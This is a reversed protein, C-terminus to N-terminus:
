SMNSPLSVFWSFITLELFKSGSKMSRQIDDIGLIQQWIEDIKIEPYDIGHGKLRRHKTEIADHLETILAQAPKGVDYKHALRELRQSPELSKRAAHIDGSASIFLTGYIDFFVSQIKADLGGGPRMATPRPSMEARYNRILDHHAM